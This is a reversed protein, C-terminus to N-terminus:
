LGLGKFTKLFVKEVHEPHYEVITFDYPEGLKHREWEPGNNPMVDRKETVCMRSDAEHVASPIAASISFRDAIAQWLKIEVEVYLNGIESYKKIPRPLDVMYAETADHLLGHARYPRDLVSAVHISHQAVSYHFKTHGAFRCQLSLSHAIDEINIEEPRPDLPYFKQGTYTQIWDGIRESM